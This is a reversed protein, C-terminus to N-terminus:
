RGIAPSPRASVRRRDPHARESDGGTEDGDGDWGAEEGALGLAVGDGEAEEPAEWGAEGDGEPELSGEAGVSGTFVRM